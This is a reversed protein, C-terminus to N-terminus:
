WRRGIVLKGSKDERISYHKLYLADGIEQNLFYGKDESIYGITEGGESFAVSRDSISVQNRGSIGITTAEGSFQAIIEGSINKVVFGDANVTARENGSPDLASFETAIIEGNIFAEGTTNSVGFNPTYINGNSLDLFTGASSYPSGSIGAEYNNSKIADTSLVGGSIITTTGDAGKVIFQNTIASIMNPTLTIESTQDNLTAMATIKSSNQTISTEATTMRTDLGSIGTEVDSVRSTIGSIGTETSTVRDRITQVTTGDYSDISSSIDTQWVKNTISQKNNDVDSIIGSMTRECVANSYVITGDSMTIKTRRWLFHTSDIDSPETTQWNPDDPLASSSTSSCYQDEISAINAGDEINALTIQSKSIM